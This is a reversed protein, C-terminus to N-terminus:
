PFTFSPQTTAENKNLTIQSWSEYDLDVCREIYGGLQKRGREKRESVCTKFSLECKSSRTGQSRNAVRNFEKRGKGMFISSIIYKSVDNFTELNGFKRNKFSM